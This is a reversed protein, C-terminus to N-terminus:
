GSSLVDSLISAHFESLTGMGDIFCFIMEDPDMSIPTLHECLAHLFIGLLQERVDRYGWTLM